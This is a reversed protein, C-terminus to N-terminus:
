LHVAKGNAAEFAEMMGESLTPHPHVATLLQELRIEAQRIVVAEAIMETVHEGALHCGLLLDTKRDFIVKVMGDRNGSAAAKGSATFPFKGIKVAYGAELAQKETLGVSAVEPLVYTCAPINQYNITSPQHGTIKEVCVAAERSAAHALAPGPVVDGIAYIGQVNTQYGNDVAIKGKEVAIGCEELGINEINAEIGVASLVKEAEVECLRGNADKVTVRCLSGATDVSEVASQTLLKIGQKRFAREVHTSIEEDELPLIHPLLEVLTVKVGLANYFYALESGIAGSGVVLLSEPLRPLVLAERYGIIKEGDQPLHPLQKSRAGTALIIHQTHYQKTEGECSVVEVIQHPRIRGMGPIVEIQNKKLLFAIGKSMTEAVARSRRIIAEFDPKITGEVTIGYATSHQISHLTQASKLLAKTPICGWNLCIGGLSEREVVATKLGAQAAKIAAVYGGPGSGIVIMDYKM